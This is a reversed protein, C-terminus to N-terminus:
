MLQDYSGASVLSLGTLLMFSTVTFYAHANSLMNQLLSAAVISDHVNNLHRCFVVASKHRSRIHVKVPHCILCRSMITKTEAM